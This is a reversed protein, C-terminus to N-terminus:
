VAQFTAEDLIPPVQIAIWEERPRLRQTTKSTRKYKGFYTQGAYAENTLM